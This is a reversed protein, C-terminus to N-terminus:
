VHARGIESLELDSVELILTEMEARALPEDEIVIYNM